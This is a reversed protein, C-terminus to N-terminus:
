VEIVFVELGVHQQLTFFIMKMDLVELGLHNTINKTPRIMRSNKYLEVVDMTETGGLELTIPWQRSGHKGSIADTFLLKGNHESIMREGNM